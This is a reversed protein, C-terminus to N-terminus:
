YWQFECRRDKDDGLGTPETEGKPVVQLRAPDTGLRSLYDAVSQARRESLAINYEDTGSTDTHGFLYLSKGPTKEICQSNADLRDRESAQISSDDFGFYITSLPCSVGTDGGGGARICVGGVCDEDDACDEDTACTKKSCKGANCTGGPGCEGDSACPKCKGAQCVGGDCESDSTCGPKPVCANSTCVEGADCQSNQTCQVCKNAFCVLPDKCDKDSNCSGPKKTEDGCAWYLAITLLILLPGLARRM